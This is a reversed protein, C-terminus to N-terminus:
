EDGTISSLAARALYEREHESFEIDPLAHLGADDAFSWGEQLAHGARKAVEDSLLFDRVAKAIVRDDKSASRLHPAIHPMRAALIVEELTM